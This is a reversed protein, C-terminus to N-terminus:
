QVLRKIGVILKRYNATRKVYSCVLERVYAIVLCCCFVILIYGLVTVLYNVGNIGLYLHNLDLIREWFLKRGLESDHLLYIPYVYLSLSNVFRITGIKLSYFLLFLSISCVPVLVSTSVGDVAVQIIAKTTDNSYFGHLYEVLGIGIWSVLLIIVLVLSNKKISEKVRSLEGGIIYFLVGRFLNFYTTSFVSGMSYELFWLLLIILYKQRLTCESLLRNIRGSLLGVILYVPVFWGLGSSLPMFLTVIVTSWSFSQVGLLNLITMTLGIIVGYDISLLMVKKISYGETRNISFFGTILFFLAVGVRGGPLFFSSIVMNSYSGEIWISYPQNSTAHIIGHRIMHNGIIMIMAFLRMLEINSQREKSM